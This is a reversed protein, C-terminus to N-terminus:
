NFDEDTLSANRIPNVNYDRHSWVSQQEDKAFLYVPAIGNSYGRGRLMSCLHEALATIQKPLTYM